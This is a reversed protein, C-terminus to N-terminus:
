GSLIQNKRNYQDFADLMLTHMAQFESNTMYSSYCKGSHIQNSMAADMPTIGPIQNYVKTGPLPALSNLSVSTPQIEMVFDLTEQMDSITEVPFGVMCFLHWQIRLMNLMRAKERIMDKTCGKKMYTLLKDSGSELGVFVKRCGCEMFFELLDETITAWRINVEWNIEFEKIVNAIPKTEKPIDSFSDGKVRLYDVNWEDVIENIEASISNLSRLQPKGSWMFSNSCFICNGVCGRGAIIISMDKTSYFEKHLLAQRRAYPNQDMDIAVNKENIIGQPCNDELWKPFSVDSYGVFIGDIYKQSRFTEPVATVHAGGVCTRIEPNHNKVQELVNLASQLKCTFVSVGVVDPKYEMLTQRFHEWIYHNYNNVNDFYLQQKKLFVSRKRTEIDKYFYKDGDYIAVDHGSTHAVAALQALSCPYFWQDYQMFAHFPPDVLLIKM